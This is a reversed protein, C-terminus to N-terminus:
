EEDHINTREKNFLRCWKRTNGDNMGEGYVEVFQLYIEACCVKQANLFRIVSRVKCDAPNIILM